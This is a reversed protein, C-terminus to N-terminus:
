LDSASGYGLSQTGRGLGQTQPQAEETVTGRLDGKQTPGPLLRDGHAGLEERSNRQTQKKLSAPADAPLCISVAQQGM